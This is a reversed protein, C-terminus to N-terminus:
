SPEGLRYYHVYQQLLGTADEADNIPKRFLKALRNERQAREAEADAPSVDDCQIPLMKIQHRQLAALTSETLVCGQVLLVKGHTDLLDDSLVMGPSAENLAVQKYSKPVASGKKNLYGLKGGSLM